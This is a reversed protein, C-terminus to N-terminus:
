RNPFVLSYTMIYAVGIFNGSRFSLQFTPQLGADDNNRMGKPLLCDMQNNIKFSSSGMKKRFIKASNPQNKNSHVVVM